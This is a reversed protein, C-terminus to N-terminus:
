SGDGRIPGSACPRPESPDDEGSAAASRNMGHRRELLWFRRKVENARTEYLRERCQMFLDFALLAMEDIRGEITALAGGDQEAEMGCPLEERLVKKLLFVFAVAQSASFDQVARMRVVGDLLPTIKDADM